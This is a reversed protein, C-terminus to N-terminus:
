DEPLAEVTVKIRAPSGLAAVTAKPLYVTGLRAPSAPGDAVEKFRVTGPTEKEWGLTVEVSTPAVTPAAAKAAKTARPATM